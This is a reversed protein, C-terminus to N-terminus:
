EGSPPRRRFFQLVCDNVDDNKTSRKSRKRSLNGAIEAERLLDSRATNIRSVTSKSIGYKEAIKRQSLVKADLDKLVEIKQALSLQNQERTRKQASM